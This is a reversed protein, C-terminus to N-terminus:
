ALAGRSVRARRVVDNTSMRGYGSEALCHITADLLRTRMQETREAQSRRQPAAADSEARPRPTRHRSM